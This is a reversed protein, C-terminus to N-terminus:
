RLSSVVLFLLGVAITSPFTVAALLGVTALAWTLAYAFVAFAVLALLVALWPRM